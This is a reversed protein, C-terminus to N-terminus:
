PQPEEVPLPHELPKLDALNGGHLYPKTVGNQTVLWLEGAVIVTKIENGITIRGIAATYKENASALERSLTKVRNETRELEQAIYVAAKHARVLEILDDTVSM